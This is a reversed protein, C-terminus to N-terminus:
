PGATPPLARPPRGTLNWIYYGNGDPRRQQFAKPKYRVVEFLTAHHEDVYQHTAAIAREHKERAVPAGPRLDATTLGLAALVASTKCGAHCCLLIQGDKGTGIALSPTQDTHAPCRAAWGDGSRRVSELRALLQEVAIAM